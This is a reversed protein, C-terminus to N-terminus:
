KLFMGRIQMIFFLTELDWNYKEWSTMKWRFFYNQEAMKCHISSIKPVSTYKIMRWLINSPSNKNFTTNDWFHCKQGLFAHKKVMKQSFVIKKSLIFIYVFFQEWFKKIEHKNTWFLIFNM